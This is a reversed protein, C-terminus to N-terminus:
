PCHLRSALAALRSQAPLNLITSETPDHPEGQTRAKSSPMADIGQELTAAMQELGQEISGTYNDNEQPQPPHTQSPSMKLTGCQSINPISFLNLPMTSYFSPERKPDQTHALHLSYKTNSTMTSYPGKITQKETPDVLIMDASAEREGYIRSLADALINHKGPTHIIDFDYSQLIM